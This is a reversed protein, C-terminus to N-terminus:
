SDSEQAKGKKERSNLEIQWRFRKYNDTHLINKGSKLSFQLASVINVTRM